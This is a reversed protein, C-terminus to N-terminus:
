RSFCSQGTVRGLKQVTQKIKAVDRVGVAPRVGFSLGVRRRRKVARAEAALVSAACGCPHEGM